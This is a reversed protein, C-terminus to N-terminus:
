LSLEVAGYPRVSLVQVSGRGFVAEMREMFLGLKAEPVFAQVTGAFGGGHVRWAGEDGLVSQCLALALAYRQETQGAACVNQLYEFSSHGSERVLRFFAKFDEHKLADVESSVRDNEAFFHVARLLARDSVKGVLDPLRRYFEAPEIERLFSVGFQEAVSKMEVPISAYQDTLNAHSGRTDVVVLQCGSRTFDVDVKEVKPNETDEFDITVLGGVSSAMQDMLGSPKGFYINEAFQSIQARLIPSMDGKNFLGDLVATILVEFAASSSLGSGRLVRSSTYADFGGVKYGLEAMRAAIGRVMGASNGKEAEVISLDSLDVSYESEGRFGESRYRVISTGNPRVVALTDVSVAAALVRGHNHDTHNGGVESRGPASFIRYPATGYYHEFRACVADIRKQAQVSSGYLETFLMERSPDM